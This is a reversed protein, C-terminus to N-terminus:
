WLALSSCNRERPSDLSLRQERDVVDTRDGLEDRAPQATQDVLGLVRADVECGEAASLTPALSALLKGRRGAAARVELDGEDSTAAGIALRIASSDDGDGGAAASDIREVITHALLEDADLLLIARSHCARRM